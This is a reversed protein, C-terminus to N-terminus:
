IPTMRSDEAVFWRDMFWCLVGLLVALGGTARFINSLKLHDVLIYGSVFVGAISGVTSAAYILGSIRGVHTIRRTTLRIMFPTLTALVFCPLLFILLSGIAPDLKQWLLPINRDTPHRMIIVDIIPVAFNPILGTVIGGPVLLWTLFSTRPHRDALAGGFYYGLALAILIVGIQSIWVYFSGGFDKALYRAGIIELVM